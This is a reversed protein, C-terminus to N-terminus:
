FLEIEDEEKEINMAKNVVETMREEELLGASFLNEMQSQYREVTKIFRDEEQESVGAKVALDFIEDKIETSLDDVITALEVKLQYNNEKFQLIAEIFEIKNEIATVSSELTNILLIVFDSDDVNSVLLSVKQSNFIARNNGFHHVRDLETSRNLLEKELPNTEKNNSYIQQTRDTHIRLLCHIHHTNTIKYFEEVLMDLNKFFLSQQLFHSIAQTKTNSDHATRANEEASKTKASSTALQSQLENKLQRQEAAAIVKAVLVDKDFPKCVYDNGGSDYGKLRDKIETSASIFIIVADNGVERQRINMSVEYGTGDGMSVDLLVIDPMYGPFLEIAEAKSQATTVQFEKLYSQM